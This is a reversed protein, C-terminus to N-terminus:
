QILEIQRKPPPKPLKEVQLGYDDKAEEILKADLIEKIL